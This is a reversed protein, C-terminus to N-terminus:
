KLIMAVIIQLSAAVTPLGLLGSAILNSTAGAKSTTELIPTTVPFDQCNADYRLVSSTVNLWFTTLRRVVTAVFRIDQQFGPPPVWKFTQRVFHAHGSHGITNNVRAGCSLPNLLPEGAADFIGYSTIDAGSTLRAQVFIGEYFGGDQFHHATVYVPKASTSYCGNTHYIIRYPTPATSATTNHTPFM